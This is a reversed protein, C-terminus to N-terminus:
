YISYLLRLLVSRNFPVISRKFPSWAPSLEKNSGLVILFVGLLGTFIGVTMRWSIAEIRFIRNIVAVEVPLTAFVLSSNGATTQFMGFMIFFQNLFFGFIGIAAIKKLDKMLIPKYSKTILLVVLSLIAAIVLRCANYVMPSLSILGIKMVPTNLGWIITIVLLMIKARKDRNDGSIGM